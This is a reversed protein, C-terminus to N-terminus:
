MELFKENKSKLSFFFFEGKFPFFFFDFFNRFNELFFKKWFNKIKKKQTFRHKNHRSIIGLWNPFFFDNKRHKRQGYNFLIGPLISGSFPGEIVVLIPPGQRYQSDPIHCIIVDSVDNIHNIVYWILSLVDNIIYKVDNIM